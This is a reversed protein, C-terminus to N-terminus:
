RRRTRWREVLLSGEVVFAMALALAVALSVWEIASLGSSWADLGTGPGAVVVLVALAALTANRALTKYGLPASHLQGFCRCDPQRGRALNVAVGAIFLGLLVLAGAAGPVATTTVVLALAVVLEAVPLVTALPAVLPQRVGFAAVAQRAGDRDILKAIGAVAFV